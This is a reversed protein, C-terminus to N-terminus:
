GPPGGQATRRKWGSGLDHLIRRYTRWEGPVYTGPDHADIPDYDESFAGRGEIETILRGAELMGLEAALEAPDRSKALEEIAAPVTPAGYAGWHRLLFDVAQRVEATVFASDTWREQATGEANEIATAILVTIAVIDTRPNNARLLFDKLAARIVDSMWRHRKSRKRRDELDKWLAPDIRVIVTKSRKSPGDPRRGGGHARERVM